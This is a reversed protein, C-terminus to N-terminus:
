TMRKENDDHEKVKKRWTHEKMAYDELRELNLVNQYEKTDIKEHSM